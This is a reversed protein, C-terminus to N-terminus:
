FGYQSEENIRKSIQQLAEKSHSGLGEHNTIEALSYELEFAEKMLKLNNMKKFGTISTELLELITNVKEKAHPNSIIESINETNYLESNLVKALLLNAKSISELEQIQLIMPMIQMLISKADELSSKPDATVLLEALLLSGKAVITTM